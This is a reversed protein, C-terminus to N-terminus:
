VRAVRNTKKRLQSYNEVLPAYPVDAFPISDEEKKSKSQSFGM